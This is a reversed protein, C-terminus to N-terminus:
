LKFNLNSGDSNAASNLHLYLFHVRLVVFVVDKPSGDSNAASNLHLYLFRIRLPVFVVDKVLSTTRLVARAPLSLLVVEM